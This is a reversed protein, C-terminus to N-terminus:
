DVALSLGEGSVWSYNCITFPNKKLLQRYIELLHTQTSLNETRKETCQSMDLNVDM